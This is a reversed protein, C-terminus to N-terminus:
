GENNKIKRHLTKHIEGIIEEEGYIGGSYEEENDLEELCSM